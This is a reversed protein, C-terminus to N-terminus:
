EEVEASYLHPGGNWFVQNKISVIQTAEQYHRNSFRHTGLFPHVDVRPFLRYASIGEEDLFFLYPMDLSMSRIVREHPLHSSRAWLVKKEPPYTCQAVRVGGVRYGVVLFVNKLLPDVWVCLHSPHHCEKSEVQFSWDPVSAIYDVGGRRVFMDFADVQTIRTNNRQCETACWLHKEYAVMASYTRNTYTRTNYTRLGQHDGYTINGFHNSRLVYGNEELVTEYLTNDGWLVHYCKEHAFVMTESVHLHTPPSLNVLLAKKRVALRQIARPFDRQLHRIPQDTQPRFWQMQRNRSLFLNGHDVAMADVVERTGLDWRRISFPFAHCAVVVVALWVGYIRTWM